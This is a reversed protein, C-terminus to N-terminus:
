DKHVCPVYLYIFLQIQIRHGCVYRPDTNSLRDTVWKWFVGPFMSSPNGHYNTCM